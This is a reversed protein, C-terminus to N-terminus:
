HFCSSHRKEWERLQKETAEEAIVYTLQIRGIRQDRKGAVVGTDDDTLKGWHEKVKGKIQKWNGEIRDPKM